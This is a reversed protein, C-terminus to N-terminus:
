REEYIRREKRTVRRASILRPKGQRETFSVILLRGRASHGIELYRTEGESHAPDPFTRALPDRFVTMAEDFTVQHSRINEAAKEPDWEFEV